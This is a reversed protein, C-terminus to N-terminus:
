RVTSSFRGSAVSKVVGCAPCLQILQPSHLQFLSFSWINPTNSITGGPFRRTKDNNEVAFLQPSALEPGCNGSASTLRRAAWASNERFSFAASSFSNRPTQSSSGYHLHGFCGLATRYICLWPDNSTYWSLSVARLLSEALITSM